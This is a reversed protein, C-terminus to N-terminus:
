WLFLEKMRDIDVGLSGTLFNEISGYKEKALDIGAQLFAKKVTFLSATEPHEEIFGAYKETLYVSSLLYDNMITEEDVGLAYLLLAAGMGTRDKGASCHFLLPLNQEDLVLKFFDRYVAIIASDSVFLRNMEMMLSDVQRNRINQVGTLLNGPSISMSVYGATSPLKDPAMLTENRDRFDVVTRIPISALYRLDADTLGSLGDSRFIKGWKMHRGDKTKYGGLDRFNYGGEMPLHKEALITKGTETNLQFYMRVTDALPTEFAGKGSGQLVPTGFDIADISKGAYLQWKEDTDIHLTIKKTYKDGVIEAKPTNGEYIAKNMKTQNCSTLLTCSLLLNFILLQKKMNRNNQSSNGSFRKPRSISTASLM